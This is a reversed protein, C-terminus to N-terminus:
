IQAFSSSWGYVPSPTTFGDGLGFIRDYHYVVDDATFERGNAPAINQWHIGQRLHIVFTSPGTFEWSEALWGEAQDNSWFTLQYNQISPDMTWQPGFLQQLWGSEISTQFIGNGPDFNVIDSAARLTVEGGYQPTGLKDWWNGTITTTTNTTIPASTITTTKTITANTTIMTETSTSSTTKTTCSALLMAAILLFTLGFWFCKSKM